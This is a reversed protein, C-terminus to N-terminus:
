APVREPESARGLVRRRRLLGAAGRAATVAVVAALVDVIVGLAVVGLLEPVTLTSAGLVMGSLAYVSTGVFSGAAVAAVIQSWAIRPAHDVGHFTAELPDPAPRLRGAVYGVVLLALAWRGAVDAAPPALDLLLGGAFGLVLGFSAGRRLGAAVVVLLVLNPAVGQWGIPGLVAVQVVQAVLLAVLWWPWSTRSATPM